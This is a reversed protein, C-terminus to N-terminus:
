QKRAPLKCGSATTTWFGPGKSMNRSLAAGLNVIVATGYTTMEPLERELFARIGPNELGISNMIGSPTEYLRTGSNGTRPRVTLGKSVIAGLKRLPYLDAYPRGFGFTGSAAWIPNAFRVGALECALSIM